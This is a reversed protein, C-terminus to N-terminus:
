SGPEPLTDQFHHQYPRLIDKTTFRTVLCSLCAILNSRRTQEFCFMKLGCSIKVEDKKDCICCIYLLDVCMNFIFLTTSHSFCFHQPILFVFTNRFSFSLLTALFVLIALKFLTLSILRM